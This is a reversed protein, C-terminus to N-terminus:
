NAEQLMHWEAFLSVYECVHVWMNDSAESGVRNGDDSIQGDAKFLFFINSSIFSCFM